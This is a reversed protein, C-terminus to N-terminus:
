PARSAIGSLPTLHVQKLVSESISHEFLLHVELIKMGSAGYNTPSGAIPTSFFAQVLNAVANESIPWYAAVNESVTVDMSPRSLSWM